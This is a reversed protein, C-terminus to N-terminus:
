DTITTPATIQQYLNHIEHTDELLKTEDSKDTASTDCNFDGITIINSTILSAQELMKGLSTQGQEEKLMTTYSARYILGLIFPTSTEVQIWMVEDNEESLNKLKIKQNRKHLIAVGCGNSKGYKQKFGETRDKRLIKYEQSELTQKPNSEDM